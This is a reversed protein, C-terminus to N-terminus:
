RRTITLRDERIRGDIIHIEAPLRLTASQNAKSHLAVNGRFRAYHLSQHHRARLIQPYHRILM